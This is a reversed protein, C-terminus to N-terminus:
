PPAAHRVRDLRTEEPPRPPCTSGRVILKGQLCVKQPQLPADAAERKQRLMDLMMRAAGMGLDYKFQHLTTLPPNLYASLSIDDFGVISIDGPINLGAQNLAGYVGLAMNDNYCVIATPLRPLALLTQAGSYGGEPSGSAALHVLKEDVRLGADQMAQRFGGEREQNTGGGLANGLYAIETHGLAILHEVVLRIGYRDDNYILAQYEGAGENNITAMPLSYAHMVQSQEPSFQPALLIVGDVGRQVMAQVVEKERQKDRHTAAIFLSYGTAHLLDDVGNLVESWFPDEFQSMIVGLAYARRTKLSRATANPVYGLQAALSKVRRTTDASIARHDHLARSVTTHSVGAARAIDKITVAM